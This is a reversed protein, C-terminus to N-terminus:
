LWKSDLNDEEQEMKRGAVRGTEETGMEAVRQEV